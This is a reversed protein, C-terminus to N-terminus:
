RQREKLGECLAVFFRRANAIDEDTNPDDPVKSAALRSLLRKLTQAVDDRSLTGYVNAHATELAPIVNVKGSAAGFNTRQMDNETKFVELIGPAVHYSFADYRYRELLRALNTFLIKNETGAKPHNFYNVAEEALIRYVTRSDDRKYMSLLTM